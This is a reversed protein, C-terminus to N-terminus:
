VMKPALAARGEDTIIYGRHAYRRGYAARMLLKRSHLSNVVHATQEPTFRARIHHQMPAIGLAGQELVYQLIRYEINTM